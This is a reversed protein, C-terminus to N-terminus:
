IEFDRSIELVGQPNLAVDLEISSFLHPSTMAM